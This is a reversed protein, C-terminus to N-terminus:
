EKLAVLRISHRVDLRPSELNREIPVPRADIGVRLRPNDGFGSGFFHPRIHSPSERGQAVRRDDLRANALIFISRAPIKQDVPMRAGLIQPKHAATRPMSELM